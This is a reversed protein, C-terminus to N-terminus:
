FKAEEAKHLPGASGGDIWALVGNQIGLVKGESESTIEPLSTGGGANADVYAKMPISEAKITVTEQTESISFHVTVLTNCGLEVAYRRNIITCTYGSNYSNPYTVLAVDEFVDSGIKYKIKVVGNIFRSINKDYYGSDESYTIFMTISESDVVLEKNFITSLDIIPILNTAGIETPVGFEDVAKVAIVQGTTATSPKQIFSDSMDQLGETTPVSTTGVILTGSGDSKPNTMFFISVIFGDNPVLGSCFHMNMGLVSASTTSPTITYPFNTFKIKFVATHNEIASNISTLTDADLPIDVSGPISNINVSETFDFVQMEASGGGTSLDVAEFETPTGNEDVKKIAIVQGITATSPKNIKNSLAVTIHQWMREFADFISKNAM